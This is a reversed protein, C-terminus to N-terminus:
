RRCAVAAKRAIAPLLTGTNEGSPAAKRFGYLLPRLTSSDWLNAQINQLEAPAAAKAYPKTGLRLDSIAQLSVSYIRGQLSSQLM